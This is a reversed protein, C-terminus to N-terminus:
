RMLLSAVITPHLQLRRDYEVAFDNRGYLRERPASLAPGRDDLPEQLLTEGCSPSRRQIFAVFADDVRIGVLDILFREVDEAILYLRSGQM